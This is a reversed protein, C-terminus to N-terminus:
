NLATVLVYCFNLNLEVYFLMVKLVFKFFSIQNESIYM